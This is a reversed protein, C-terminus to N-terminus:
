WTPREGDRANLRTEEKSDRVKGIVVAGEHRRSLSRVSPEELARRV